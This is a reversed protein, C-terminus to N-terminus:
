GKGQKEREQVKRIDRDMIRDVLSPLFRKALHLFKTEAGPLILFKGKSVGKLVAAAVAEPQMVKTAQSIAATEAPKTRNEIQYGPTDTDPPCVVSVRIGHPKLESHLAESFGLVAFKSACYDTLGFVGLLGAASSINVIFGGREKMRPVLTSVTNWIGYFNIKMTEDLQEFSIDQFYRPYARGACNILIDPVGFERVAGSLVNRVAGHDSVDLQKWGFSQEESKRAAELELLAAELRPRGRAFLIVHAGSEALLRAIALGIGSSGGPIFVTRSRFNKM